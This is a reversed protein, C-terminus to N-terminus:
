KLRRRWKESDRVTHFICYVTVLDEAFEFFVAHPFRRVLARRYSEHVVEYIEPNRCIRQICADVASLFDEGLGPRRDEYWAYAVSLDQEAEPAVVHEFAM